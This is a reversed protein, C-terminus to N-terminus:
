FYLDLLDASGHTGRHEGGPLDVASKAIREPDIDVELSAANRDVVDHQQRHRVVTELGIAARNEYIRLERRFLRLGDLPEQASEELPELVGHLVGRCRDLRHELTVVAGLLLDFYLPQAHRDPVVDDRRFGAGVAKSADIRVAEVIRNRLDRHDVRELAFRLSLFEE